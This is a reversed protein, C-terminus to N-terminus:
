VKSGLGLDLFFHEVNYSAIWLASGLRRILGIVQDSNGGVLDHRCDSTDVIGLVLRTNVCKATCCRRKENKGRYLRTVARSPM